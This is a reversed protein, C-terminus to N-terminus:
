TVTEYAQLEVVGRVIGSTSPIKRCIYVGHM